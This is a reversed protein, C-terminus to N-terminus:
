SNLEIFEGVNPKYKKVVTILRNYAEILAYTDLPTTTQYDSDHLTSSSSVLNHLRMLEDYDDPELRDIRLDNQNHILDVGQFVNSRIKALFFDEYFNNITTRLYNSVDSSENNVLKNRIIDLRQDYSLRQFDIENSIEGPQLAKEIQYYNGCKYIIGAKNKNGMCQNQPDEICIKCGSKNVSKYGLTKSILKQYLELSHTFIVVQRTNSLEGVIDCFKNIHRHDLSTIPDDFVLTNINDFTCETLFDCLAHVKAEGESLIEVTQYENEGVQIKSDIHTVSSPNNFKRKLKDKIPLNFKDIYQKFITRYQSWVEQNEFHTKSNSIRLRYTRFQERESSYAVYKKLYEIAKRVIERNAILYEKDELENLASKAKKKDEELKGLKLDLKAKNLKAYNQENKVIVWAYKLDKFLSIVHDELNEESFLHRKILDITDFQITSNIFESLDIKEKTSIDFLHTCYRLNVSRNFAAISDCADKFKGIRNIVDDLEKQHENEAQEHLNLILNKSEESLDQNCYFCKDVENPYNQFGYMLATDAISKLLYLYKDPDTEENNLEFLLQYKDFASFDRAQELDKRKIILKNINEIKSVLSIVSKLYEKIEEALGITGIDLEIKEHIDQYSAISDRTLAQKNEDHDSSLTFDLTDVLYGEIISVDTENNIKYTLSREGSSKLNSLIDHISNKFLAENTEIEEKVFDDIEDIAEQFNRYYSIKYRDLSWGTERYNLSDRLIEKDCFKISRNQRAGPTWEHTYLTNPFNNITGKRQEIRYEKGNTFEIKASIEYSDTKYINKRILQDSHFADKLIKYYSSKGAGNYGFLLTFFPSFFIEQNDILGNVSKNDSLKYLLESQEDVNTDTTDSITPESNFEEDSLVRDCVSNIQEQSISGNECIINRLKTIWEKGNFDLESIEHIANRM